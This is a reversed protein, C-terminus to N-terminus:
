AIQIVQCLAHSAPHHLYALCPLHSIQLFDLTISACLCVCEFLCWNRIRQPRRPLLHCSPLYYPTRTHFLWYFSIKPHSKAGQRKSTRRGSGPLSLTPPLHIRSAPHASLIRQPHCVPPRGPMDHLSVHLLCQISFLPSLVVPVIGDLLTSPLSLFFSLKAAYGM